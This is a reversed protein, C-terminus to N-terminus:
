RYRVDGGDGGGFSCRLLVLRQKRRLCEVGGGRSALDGRSRELDGPPRGLGECLLGEDNSLFRESEGRFREADGCLRKLDKLTTATEEFSISIKM